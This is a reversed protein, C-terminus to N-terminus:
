KDALEYIAACLFFQAGMLVISGFGFTVLSALGIALGGCLLAGVCTWFNSMVLSLATQIAEPLSQGDIIAFPAFALIIGMLVSAAILLLTGFGFIIMAVQPGSQASVMPLLYFTVALYIGFIAVTALLLILIGSASGKSGFLYAPTLRKGRVARLATNCTAGMALAYALLAFFGVVSLLSIGLVLRMTVDAIEFQTVIFRLLYPMGNSGITGIVAAAGFLLPAMLCAPFLSNWALQLANSVTLGGSRSCKPSQSWGSGDFGAPPAYPSTAVQQSFVDM